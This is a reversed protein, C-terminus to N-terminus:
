LSKISKIMINRCSNYDRDMSINCKNNICNYTKNGGLNYNINGCCSCTMSTYHEDVLLLNNEKISCKYKLKELFQYYSLTLAVRKNQKTLVSDERSVINKTSWKGIIINKYNNTLYDIVKWHMDKMLNKLRDRLITLYKNKIRKLTRNTNKIYKKNHRINDNYMIPMIPMKLKFDNDYYNIRNLVKIIENRVNQGIEVLGTNTKCTLFTRLGPDIVIYNDNVVPKKEVTQPVLLTFVGNKKNYHINSDHETSYDIGQANLLTKGLKTSFITKKDKSIAQKEVYLVNSMKTQKLYRVNYHTINGNKKNTDCSKFMSCALVVANNLSHVPADYLLAIDSIKNKLFSTRIIQGDFFIDANDPKLYEKIREDRTMKKITTNIITYTQQLNKRINKLYQKNKYIREKIFKVTENYILRYGEMMKLLKEKQEITPKLIIKECKIIEQNCDKSKEVYFVYKNTDTIISQQISCNYFSHTNLSQKMSFINYLPVKNSFKKIPKILEDRKKQQYITKQEKQLRLDKRKTTM